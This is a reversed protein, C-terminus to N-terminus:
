VLCAYFLLFNLGCCIFATFIFYGHLGQTMSLPIKIVQRYNQIIIVGKVSKKWVQRFNCKLVPCIVFYMLSSLVEAHREDLKSSLDLGALPYSWVAWSCSWNSSPFRGFTSVTCNRHGWPVVYSQGWPSFNKGIAQFGENWSVGITRGSSYWRIILAWDPKM